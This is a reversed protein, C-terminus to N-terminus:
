ACNTKIIANNKRAFKQAELGAVMLHYLTSAPATDVSVNNDQDISDIYQGSHPSVLYYKTLAKIATLTDSTYDYKDQASTFEAQALSAKIWETMPWCRKTKKTTHGILSVEDLLLNSTKDLGLTLANHYLAHCYNDVPAQTFKQYQRLLWVWEMMHGPEVTAGLEGDAVHWNDSFFELLVKNKHDFFTTEFLCYIEGAKALWKGDHTFEYLTLFAEFLHMHPNQRRNSASYDGEMWGGPADKLKNDITNLLKNAQKLANLDNFVHYRWAYALLFFAIDYLDNNPNIIMNDANVIHAYHSKEPVTAYKQCFSELSAVLDFGNNIWGQQNAAAFVFMQRAQVRIRKNSKADTDGNALFQEISAGDKDIGKLSWLPLASNALWNVYNNIEVTLENNM